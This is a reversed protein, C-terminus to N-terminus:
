EEPSIYGHKVHTLGPPLNRRSMYDVSRVRRGFNRARYLVAQQIPRSSVAAPTIANGEHPTCSDRMQTGHNWQGSSVATRIEEFRAEACDPCKQGHSFARMYKFDRPLSHTGALPEPSAFFEHYPDFWPLLTGTAGHRWLMVNLITEDFNNPRYGFPGRRRDRIWRGVSKCEELFPRANRAYLYTGHAYPQSKHSVSLLQMLRGQNDPDHPHQAAQPFLSRSDALDVLDSLEPSAVMDCDVQISLDFPSALSAEFKAYYISELNYSSLFIPISDVRPHRFPISQGLGAILVGMSTFELVSQALIRTLTAYPEDPTAFVVVGTSDSM